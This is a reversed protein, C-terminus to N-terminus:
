QSTDSPSNSQASKCLSNEAWEAGAVWANRWMEVDVMTAAPYQVVLNEIDQRCADTRTCRSPPADPPYQYAPGWDVGYVEYQRKRRLAMRFRLSRLELLFEYLRPALLLYGHLPQSFGKVISPEDFGIHPLVRTLRNWLRRLFSRRKGQLNPPKVNM